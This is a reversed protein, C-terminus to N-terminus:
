RRGGRVKTIWYDATPADADAYYARDRSLPIRASFENHGCYVILVDPKLARIISRVNPEDFVLVPPDHVLARAISVKQKM